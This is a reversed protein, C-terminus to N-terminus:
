TEVSTGPELRTYATDPALSALQRGILGTGTANLLGDHVAYATAAGVGRVFDVVESFKSWPAHLPVLLVGVPDAPVTLADGPHFVSGGPAQVHFGINTVVPIDPHIVAHREGHVHVDLGAMSATDGDSLVHVAVGRDRLPQLQEAIGAHTFLELDPNADAAAHLRDLDFHDAHEHTVAVADAGVAADGESWGGPDIVLTGGAHELRVCAHGHKTLRM